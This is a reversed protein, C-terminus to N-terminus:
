DKGIAAHIEMRAFVPIWYDGINITKRTRPNHLGHIFASPSDGFRGFRIRRLCQGKLIQDQLQLPEPSVLAADDELWVVHLHASRRKM